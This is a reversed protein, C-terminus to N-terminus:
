FMGIKDLRATGTDAFAIGFQQAYVEEPRPLSTPADVILSTPIVVPPQKKSTLFPM